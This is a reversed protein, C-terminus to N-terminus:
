RVYLPQAAAQPHAANHFGFFAVVQNCPTMSTTCNALTSKAGFFAGVAAFALSLFLCTRV